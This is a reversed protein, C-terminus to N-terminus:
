KRQGSAGENRTARPNGTTSAIWSCVFAPIGGLSGIAVFWGPVDPLALTERLVVVALIWGVIAAGIPRRPLEIIEAVWDFLAVVLAPFVSYLLASPAVSIAVRQGELWGAVPLLIVFLILMALIPGLIAFIVFRKMGPVRGM